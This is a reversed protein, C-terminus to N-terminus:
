SGQGVGQLFELTTDDNDRVVSFYLEGESDSAISVDQLESLRKRVFYPGHHVSLHRRGTVVTLRPALGEWM